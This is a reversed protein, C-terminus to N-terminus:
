PQGDAVRNVKQKKKNGIIAELYCSAHRDARYLPTSLPFFRSLKRSDNFNSVGTIDLSKNEAYKYIGTSCQIM